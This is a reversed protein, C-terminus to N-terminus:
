EPIACGLHNSKYIALQIQGNPLIRTQSSVLRFIIATNQSAILHPMLQDPNRRTQFQLVKEPNNKATEILIYIDPRTIEKSLWPRIQNYADQITTVPTKM